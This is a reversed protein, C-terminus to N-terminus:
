RGALATCARRLSSGLDWRADLAELAAPDASALLPAFLACGVFLALLILGAIALPQRRLTRTVDNTALEDEGENTLM